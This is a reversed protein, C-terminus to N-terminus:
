LAELNIESNIETDGTRADGSMLLSGIKAFMFPQLVIQGIQWDVPM